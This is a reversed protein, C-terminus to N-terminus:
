FYYHTRNNGDPIGRKGTIGTFLPSNQSERNAGANNGGVLMRIIASIVLYGRIM